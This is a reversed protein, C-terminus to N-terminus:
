SNTENYNAPDAAEYKSPCQTLLNRAYLVEGEYYGDIIVDRGPAFMDPKLGEYVVFVKGQPSKPDEIHFKLEIKPELNYVVDDATVRGAVRLKPHETVGREVEALLESPLLVLSTGTQTAQFALLGAIVFVVLVISVFVRNM